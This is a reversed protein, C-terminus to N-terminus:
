SGLRGLRLAPADLESLAFLQALSAGCLFTAGRPALPPGAPACRALVARLPALSLWSRARSPDKSRPRWAAGRARWRCKMSRRSIAARLICGAHESGNHGGISSAWRWGRGVPRAPQVPRAALTSQRTNPSFTRTLDLSFLPSFPEAPVISKPAWRRPLVRLVMATAPIGSHSRADLSGASDPPRQGTNSGALRSANM